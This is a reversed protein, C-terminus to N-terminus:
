SGSRRFGKLFVISTTFAIKMGISIKYSNGSFRLYGFM